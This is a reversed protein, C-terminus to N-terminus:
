KEKYEKGLSHLANNLALNQFASFRNDSELDKSFDEQARDCYNILLLHSILSVNQTILYMKRWERLAYQKLKIDEAM